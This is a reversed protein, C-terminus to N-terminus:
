APPTPQRCRGAMHDLHDEGRPDAVATSVVGHAPPAIDEIAQTTKDLIVAHGRIPLQDDHTIV